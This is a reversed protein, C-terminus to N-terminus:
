LDKPLDTEYKKGDEIEDENESNEIEEDVEDPVVEETESTEIQKKVLDIVRKGDKKVISYELEEGDDIIKGNEKLKKLLLDPNNIIIEVEKDTSKKLLKHMVKTKKALFYGIIAGLSLALVVVIILENAM